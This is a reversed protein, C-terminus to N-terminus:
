SLLNFADPFRVTGAVGDLAGPVLELAMWAEATFDPHDAFPSRLRKALQSSFGFRPYYGPHGLVIVISAGRQGCVELGYRVLASGIGRRQREPRVAMPALAAAGILGSGSEIFVQSFLIHGVVQVGEVAVLSAIVFGDARLQDVLRAEGEGGFALRNVERIAAHDQPTEERLSVTPESL